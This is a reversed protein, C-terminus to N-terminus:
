IRPKRYLIDRKDFSRGVTRLINRGYIFPNHQGGVLFASLILPEIRLTKHRLLFIGIRILCLRQYFGIRVLHKHHLIRRRLRQCRLLHVIHVVQRVHARRVRRIFLCAAHRGHRFHFKRQDATPSTESAATEARQGKVLPANHLRSAM